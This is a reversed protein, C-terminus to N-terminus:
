RGSCVFGFRKQLRDNVRQLATPNNGFRRAVRSCTRAEFRLSRTKVESAAGFLRNGTHRALRRQIRIVEERLIMRDPIYSHEYVYPTLNETYEPSSFIGVDEPAPANTDPYVPESSRRKRWQRAAAGGSINYTTFFWTDGSNIGTYFEGSGNLFASNDILIHYRTNEILTESLDITITATGSGSVQAGQASIIEITTADSSRLLSITGAGGQVEQDFLISLDSALDVGTEGSAPSFTTVTPAAAEVNNLPLLLFAVIITNLIFRM